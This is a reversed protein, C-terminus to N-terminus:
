EGRANNSETPEDLDCLSDIRKELKKIKENQEDIHSKVASICVTLGVVTFIMGANFRRQSRLTRDIVKINKESAKMNSFIYNLMENM